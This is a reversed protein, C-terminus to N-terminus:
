LHIGAAPTAPLTQEMIYRAPNGRARVATGPAARTGAGNGTPVSGACQTSGSLFSPGTIIRSSTTTTRAMQPCPKPRGLCQRVGSFPFLGSHAPQHPLYSRRGARKGAGCPGHRGGAREGGEGLERERGARRRGRGRAASTLVGAAAGQDRPRGTAM